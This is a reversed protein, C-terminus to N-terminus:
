TWKYQAFDKVPLLYFKSTGGYLQSKRTGPVDCLARIDELPIRYVNYADPTIIFYIWDDAKSTHIGSPIGSHEYEFCFNGTEHARRDSKVEYARGDHKFDWDSFRGKPAQETKGDGLLELAKEEWKKGFALDQHWGM